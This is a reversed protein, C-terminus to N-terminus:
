DKYFKIKSNPDLRRSDTVGHLKTDHAEVVGLEHLEGYKFFSTQQGSNRRIRQEKIKLDM